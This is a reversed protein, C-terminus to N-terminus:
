ATILIPHQNIFDDPKLLDSDIIIEQYDCEFYENVISLLNQRTYNYKVGKELGKFNNHHQPCQAWKQQRNQRYVQELDLDISHTIVFDNLSIGRCFEIFFKRGDRNFFEARVRHNCVDDKYRADYASGMGVFVLKGRNEEIAQAKARALETKAEKIQEESVIYSHLGMLAKKYLNRGGADCCQHAYAVANCVRINTYIQQFLEASLITPTNQTQM